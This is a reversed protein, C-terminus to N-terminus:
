AMKRVTASDDLKAAAAAALRTVNQLSEGMSVLRKVQRNIYRESRDLLASTLEFICRLNDAKVIGVKLTEPPGCGPPARALRYQQQKKAAVNTIEVAM